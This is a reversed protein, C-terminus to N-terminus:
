SSTRVAAKGAFASSGANPSILIVGASTVPRFIAGLVNSFIPDRM